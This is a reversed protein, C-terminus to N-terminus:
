SLSHLTCDQLQRDLAYATIQNSSASFFQLYTVEECRLARPQRVGSNIGFCYLQPSNGNINRLIVLRMAPTGTPSTTDLTAQPRFKKPKVRVSSREGCANEDKVVSETSYKTSGAELRLCRAINLTCVATTAQCEGGFNNAECPVMLTERLSPTIRVDTKWLGITLKARRWRYM